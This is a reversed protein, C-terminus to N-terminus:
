AEALATVEAKWNKLFTATSRAVWRYNEELIELQEKTVEGDINRFVQKDKMKNKDGHPWIRWSDNDIVDALVIEGNKNRGYECKLDVLVVGLKAWAKELAEFIMTQYKFILDLEDKTPLNADVPANKIWSKPGVPQKPNYLAYGDSDLVAYPDGLADEKLFIEKLLHIGEFKTGERLGPIRDLVSGTIIRRAVVELKFMDVFEARFSTDDAQSIFALPVEPCCAALYRMCNCNTENAQIGKGYWSICRAGNGATVNDNSVVLVKDNGPLLYLSKTKGWAVLPLDKGPKVFSHSM